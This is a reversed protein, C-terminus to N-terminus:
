AGIDVRVQKYKYGYIFLCCKDTNFKRNSEFWTIVLISERELRHLLQDLNRDCAYPTTDNVCNCIETEKLLFFLGNLFINFLISGFLSGLPLEKVIETWSNFATDIKTM